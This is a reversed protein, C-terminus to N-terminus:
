LTNCPSDAANSLLLRAQRKLARERAAVTEPRKEHKVQSQLPAYDQPLCGVNGNLYQMIDCVVVLLHLCSESGSRAESDPPLLYRCKSLFDLPRCSFFRM